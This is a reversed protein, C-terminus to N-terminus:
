NSGGGLSIGSQESFGIRISGLIFSQDEGGGEDTGISFNLFLDDSVKFESGVAYRFYDDDDIGKRDADVYGVDAYVRMDPPQNKDEEFLYFGGRLQGALLITDQEFADASLDTDNVVEDSRYRVHAIIQASDRFTRSEEFGYALSAYLAAGSWELDDYSGSTSVWTPAIGLAFSSANWSAKEFDKRCSDARALVGTLVPAFRGILEDYRVIHEQKKLLRIKEAPWKAADPIGRDFAEALKPDSRYLDEELEQAVVGLDAAIETVLVFLEASLEGLKLGADENNKGPLFIDQYFCELVTRSGDPAKRLELKLDGDEDTDLSGDDTREFTGRYPDGRDWPVWRFSLAAAVGSDDGGGITSTAASFETRTLNRLVVDDNYDEATVDTWLLVPTTDVAVGAALSGSGASGNLLGFALERPTKPRIVTEPTVGLVAFAPSDPISLNGALADLSNELPNKPDDAQAPSIFFAWMCCAAVVRTSKDRSKM